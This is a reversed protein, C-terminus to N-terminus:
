ETGHVRAQKLTANLSNEAEEFHSRDCKQHSSLSSARPRRPELSWGRNLDDYIDSGHVEDSRM